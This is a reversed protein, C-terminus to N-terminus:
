HGLKSNFCSFMKLPQRKMMRKFVFGRLVLILKLQFDKLVDTLCNTQIAENLYFLAQRNSRDRIIKIGVFVKAIGLDILEIKAGLKTRTEALIATNEGFVIM